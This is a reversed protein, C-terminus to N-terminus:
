CAIMAYTPRSAIEDAAEQQLESLRAMTRARVDADYGSDVHDDGIFGWVSDYTIFDDDAHLRYKGVIGWTGENRIRRWIAQREGDNEAYSDDYMCLDPVVDLMVLGRQELSGFRANVSAAEYARVATFGNARLRKYERVLAANAAM